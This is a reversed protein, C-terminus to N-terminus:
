CCTNRWVALTFHSPVTFSKTKPSFEESQGSSTEVRFKTFSTFHDEHTVMLNTQKVQPHLKFFLSSRNPSHNQISKTCLKVYSKTPSETTSSEVQLIIELNRLLIMGNSAHLSIRSCPRWHRASCLQEVQAWLLVAACDIPESFARSCDIPESFVRVDFQKWTCKTSWNHDSRSKTNTWVGINQISTTLTTLLRPKWRSPWHECVQTERPPFWTVIRALKWRSRSIVPETFMRNNTLIIINTVHSKHTKLSEATRTM